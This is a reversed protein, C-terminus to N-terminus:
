HSFALQENDNDNNMLFLSGKYYLDSKEWM